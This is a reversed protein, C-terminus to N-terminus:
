NKKSDSTESLIKNKIMEFETPKSESIHTGIIRVDDPFMGEGHPVEIGADLMGRLSAFVRSGKIPIHLGIDLVAYEVKCENARKGALLGTLYAAPLNGTSGNWGLKRLETSVASAIVRDGTETYEIFQVITNNVTKRVVARTQHSKLLRLRYRYDTRNERRRRFPVKYRPGFKSPM